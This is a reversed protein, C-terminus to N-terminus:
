KDGIVECMRIEGSFANIVSIMLKSGIDFKKQTKKLSWFKSNRAENPM